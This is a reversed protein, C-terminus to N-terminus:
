KLRRVTLVTLGAYDEGPKTVEFRMGLFEVEDKHKAPETLKATEITIQPQINVDEGIEPAFATIEPDYIVTLNIPPRRAPRYVAPVEKGFAALYAGADAEMMSDFDNM